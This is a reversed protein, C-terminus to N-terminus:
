PDEMTRPLPPASSIFQQKPPAQHFKVVTLPAPMGLVKVRPECEFASHRDCRRSLVLSPGEPGSEIEPIREPGLSELGETSVWAEM